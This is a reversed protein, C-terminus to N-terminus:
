NTWRKWTISAIDEDEQKRKCSMKRTTYEYECTTDVNVPVDSKVGLNQLTVKRKQEKNDKLVEGDSKKRNTRLQFNDPNIFDVQFGHAKYLHGLM